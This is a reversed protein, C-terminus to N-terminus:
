GVLASRFERVSISVHRAFYFFSFGRLLLLSFCMCLGLLARVFEEVTIRTPSVVLRRPHSQTNTAATTSPPSCPRPRPPVPMDCMRLAYENAILERLRSEFAKAADPPAVTTTLPTEPAHPKAWEGTAQAVAGFVGCLYRVYSISSRPSSLSLSFPSDYVPFSCDGGILTTVCLM